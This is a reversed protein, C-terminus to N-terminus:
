EGVDLKRALEKVAKIDMKGSGLIPILEVKYFAKAKPIWLNPLGTEDMKSMLKDFEEDTM